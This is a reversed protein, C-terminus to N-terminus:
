SVISGFRSTLLRAAPPLVICRYRPIEREFSLNFQIDTKRLTLNENDSIMADTLNYSSTKFETKGTLFTRKNIIYRLAASKPLALDVVWRPAFHNEYTFVPLANFRGLAQSAVFGFGIEETSSKQITYSASLFYKSADADFVFQDNNLEAGGFFRISTFPTLNQKYFFRIGASYFKQDNIREILENNFEYDENDFLFRHQNYKLQLGFVRDEKILVPVALKTKILIDREVESISSNGNREGSSARYDTLREIGVEAIKPRYNPQAKALYALISLLAFFSAKHQYTM